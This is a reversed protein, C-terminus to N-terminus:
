FGFVFYLIALIAAAAITSAALVYRAGTGTKGQRAKTTTLVKDKDSATRTDKGTASM